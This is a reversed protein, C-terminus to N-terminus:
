RLSLNRTRPFTMLCLDKLSHRPETPKLFRARSLHMPAHPMKPKATVSSALNFLLDPIPTSKALLLQRTIFKACHGAVLRTNGRRNSRLSETSFEIALLPLKEAGSYVAKDGIDLPASVVQLPSHVPLAGCQHPM